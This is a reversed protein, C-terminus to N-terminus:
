QEKGRKAEQDITGAMYDDSVQEHTEALGSSLQDDKKYDEVEFHKGAIESTSNQQKKNNKEM